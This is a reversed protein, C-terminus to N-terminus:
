EPPREPVEELRLPTDWSKEGTKENLYFTRGEPDTLQRWGLEKLDSDQEEEDRTDYPVIRATKLIKGNEQLLVYHGDSSNRMPGLYRAVQGIQEFGKVRRNCSVRKKVVVNCGFKMLPTDKLALRERQKASYTSAFPWYYLPLKSEALVARTQRKILGVASEASGNAKFDEPVSSTKRIGKDACWAALATTQM